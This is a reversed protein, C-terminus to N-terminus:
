RVPKRGLIWVHSSLQHGALFEQFAAGREEDGIMLQAFRNGALVDPSRKYANRVIDVDLKGPTTICIDALGAREFVARFGAVSLFNIHHPPSIRNSKEWSTQIDFGDVALTSVFVHGGPRVLASLTKVFSVPDYVHELGEFCVLLDAYGDYGHVNEVIDEVVKFGKGRCIQALNQSPEVAILDARPFRTRWEELFIGYGAGVDVLREASVGKEACLAALREVRPRFIRERRAEAVAPFFIEAWYRSSVSSRYFAEFAGILPRPSQYLMGCGDCRVDAFGSKEFQWSVNGLECAICPNSLRETNNFRHEADAASIELYRQFIDDPGIDAGKM